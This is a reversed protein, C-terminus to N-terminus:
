IQLKAAIAEATQQVTNDNCNIVDDAWKEYLPLREDFMDKLTEGNKILVGRTSLNSIRSLMHEYDINLFIIKGLSKLHEMAKQSYVVSGGTAIVTGQIDLSLIAKEEAEQFYDNGRNDIIDQLSAGEINQILLDTDFFNKLMLKAAVVGCTSKGSGPM